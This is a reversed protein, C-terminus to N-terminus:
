RAPTRHTTTRRDNAKEGLYGGLASALAWLLLTFFAGLAADRAADSILEPDLPGLLDGVPGFLQGMGLGSLVLIIVTALAWSLLGNILGRRGESREERQHDLLRGAVYGGVLFSIAGIVASIWDSAGTEDALLDIGLALLGLLLFTAVAALAGATIARWNVGESRAGGAHM